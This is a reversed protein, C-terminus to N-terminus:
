VARWRGLWEGWGELHNEWSGSIRQYAIRSSIDSLSLSQQFWFSQSMRSDSTQPPNLSLVPLPTHFPASTHLLAGPSPLRYNSPICDAIPQLPDHRFARVPEAISIPNCHKLWDRSWFTVGFQPHPPSLRFESTFHVATYKMWLCINRCYRSGRFERTRPNLVIISFPDRGM